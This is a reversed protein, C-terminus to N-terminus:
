KKLLDIFKIKRGKKNTETDKNNPENKCAFLSIGLCIILIKKLGIVEVGKNETDRRM